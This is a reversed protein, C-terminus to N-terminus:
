HRERVTGSINLLLKVSPREQRWGRTGRSKCSHTCKERHTTKKAAVEEEPRAEGRLRELNEEINGGPWLGVTATSHGVLVRYMEVSNSVLENVRGLEVM